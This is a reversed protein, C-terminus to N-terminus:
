REGGAEALRYGREAKSINEPKLKVLKGLEDALSQLASEDGGKLELELESIPQSKGRAKVEGCDLALEILASQWQFDIVKREFDTTFVPELSAIDIGQLAEPWVKALREGDLENGELQWEWEGRRSIGNVSVGKTKLTQIYVGNKERIRLAVRHQNLREDPTDFYTNKLHLTVVPQDVLCAAKLVKQHDCAALSLKLEVEHGM